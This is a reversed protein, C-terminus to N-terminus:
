RPAQFQSLNEWAWNIRNYVMDKHYVKLVCQLMYEAVVVLRKYTQNICSTDAYTLVSGADFNYQIILRLDSLVSLLSLQLLLWLNQSGVAGSYYM